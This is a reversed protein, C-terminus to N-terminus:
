LRPNVNKLVGQVRLSMESRDNDNSYTIAGIKLSSFADLFQPSEIFSIAKRLDEFATVDFILIVNRSSDIEMSTFDQVGNEILMNKILDHYSIFHVDNDMFLKVQQTKNSIYNLKFQTTSQSLQQTLREKEETLMVRRTNFYYSAGFLGLLVSLLIVSFFISYRNVKKLTQDLKLYTDAKKFLNIRKNM